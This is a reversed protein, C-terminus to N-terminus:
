APEGTTGPAGAARLLRLRGIEAANKMLEANVWAPTDAVTMGSGEPWPLPAPADLDPAQELVRSWRERLDRLWAVCEEPGPWRIEDRNRVTWCVRAPEWLFDEPVLRDLHYEFLAWTLDFQSSLLTARRDTM